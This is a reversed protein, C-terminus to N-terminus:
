AVGRLSAGECKSELSCYETKNWKREASM